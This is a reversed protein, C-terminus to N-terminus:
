GILLVTVKKMLPRSKLKSNRSKIPYKKNMKMMLHCSCLKKKINMLELKSLRQYNKSNRKVLFHKNQEKIYHM